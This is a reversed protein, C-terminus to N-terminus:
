LEFVYSLNFVLGQPSINVEDTREGEMEFVVSESDMELSETIIEDINDYSDGTFSFSPTLSSLHVQYGGGLMLLGKKYVRFYLNIEPRVVNHFSSMAIDLENDYFWRDNIEIYKHDVPVNGMEVTSWGFVIDSKAQLWIKDKLVAQNYGLGLAMGMMSFTGFQGDFALALHLKRQVSSELNLGFGWSGKAKALALGEIRTTDEDFFSSEQDIFTFEYPRDDGQLTRMGSQIRFQAGPVGSITVGSAKTGEGDSLPEPVGEAIASVFCIALLALTKHM